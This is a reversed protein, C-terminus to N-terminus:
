LAMMECFVGCDDVIPPTHRGREPDLEDLFVGKICTGNVKRELVARKQFVDPFDVRIHNWYGMGGKVCGVCNNNNYGMEYMLPRKIGSARLIEHAKNKSIRNEILPFRHSYEPMSDTLGDCRKQEDVDFGWIYEIDDDQYREWYKRTRKKLTKTCQAGRPGNIYGTGYLLCATEIDRYISQLITIPKGLWVECDRVFRLTDSHQDAVHTYIIQDIDSIALKTAVASSVGASFWSITKM